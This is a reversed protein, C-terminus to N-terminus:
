FKLTLNVMFNRGAMPYYMSYSTVKDNADLSTVSYGNTEYMANFLNYITGGITIEKCRRLAFTYSANLHSVFYADLSNDKLELNDMYQRGVYQSTLSAAFGKLNYSIVSNAVVSPSFSITTTKM